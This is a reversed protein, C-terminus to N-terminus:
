IKEAAAKESKLRVQRVVANSDLWTERRLPRCCGDACGVQRVGQAARRILNRHRYGRRTLYRLHQANRDDAVNSSHANVPLGCLEDDLRSHIMAKHDEITRRSCVVLDEDASGTRLHLQM